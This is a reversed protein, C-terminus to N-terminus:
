SCTHMCFAQWVHRSLSGDVADHMASGVCGPHNRLAVFLTIIVADTQLCAHLLCSIIHAHLPNSPTCHLFRQTSQSCSRCQTLPTEQAPRSRGGARM